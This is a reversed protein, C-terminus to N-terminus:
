RLEVLAAGLLGVSGRGGGLKAQAERAEIAFLELIRGGGDVLVLEDYARYRILCGGHAIQFREAGLGLVLRADDLNKTREVLARVVPTVENRQVVLAELQRLIAAVLDGDQALVGLEPFLAAVVVL